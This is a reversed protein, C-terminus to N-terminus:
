FAVVALGEPQSNERAVKEEGREVKACIAGELRVM